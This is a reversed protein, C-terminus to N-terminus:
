PNASTKWGGDRRQRARVGISHNNPKPMPSRWVNAGEREVAQGYTIFVPQFSGHKVSRVHTARDFPSYFHIPPFQAFPRTPTLGNMKADIYTPRLATQDGHRLEGNGVARM